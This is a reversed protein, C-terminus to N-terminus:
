LHDLMVRMEEPGLLGREVAGDSVPLPTAVELPYSHSACSAPHPTRPAPHPARTAPLPARPASHPPRPSPRPARPSPPPTRPAPRPVRPALYLMRSLSLTASMVPPPLPMPRSDASRNAASPADTTTTSISSLPPLSVTAAIVFAPPRALYTLASTAFADSASRMTAD